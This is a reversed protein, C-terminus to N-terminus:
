IACYTMVINDSVSYKITTLEHRKMNEAAIEGNEENGSISLLRIDKLGLESDSYLKYITEKACWHLLKRLPTPAEEDDRVFKIAIRNVRESIYEVDISVRQCPSVIVAVCGKTHSISINHGNSLRPSGNPNHSLEVACRHKITASLTSKSDQCFLKHLLLREALVEYRRREAKHKAYVEDKFNALFPHNAILEEATFEGKLQALVTQSSVNETSIM